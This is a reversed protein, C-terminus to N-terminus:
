INVAEKKEGNTKIRYITYYYPSNEVKDTYYIWNGVVCIFVNSSELDVIKEKKKGNIKMKYIAQESGDNVAYYITKEYINFTKIKKDIVETDTKDKLNLKMLHGNSKSIYYVDNSVIQFSVIGNEFKEIGSGDKKMRKFDDDKTTYYIFKGSIQFKEIEEDALQQRKEGNIKIKELKNDTNTYYIWGDSVNLSSNGISTTEINDVLVQKKEGNPKMKVVQRIYNGNASKNIALYYLYGKYSNVSKVYEDIAKRTGGEKEYIKALLMHGKYSEPYKDILSLLVTKAARRDGLALLFKVCIISLLESFNTGTYEILIVIGPIIIATVYMLVKAINSAFIGGALLELFNLLIGIAELVLISIYNTDNKRILKSFVIIFLSFALINFIFKEILM